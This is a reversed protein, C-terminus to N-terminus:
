NRLIKIAKVLTARFKPIDVTVNQNELYVSKIMLWGKRHISMPDRLVPDDIPYQSSLSSEKASIKYELYRINMGGAPDGFDLRAFFDIKGLPVVQILIANDPLFLMNTLGAGHIGLMVDCSNVLQAFKSLSTSTDAEAKVVEFGLKSAM